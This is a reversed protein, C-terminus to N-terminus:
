VIEDVLGFELCQSADFYIDRKLWKELKKKGIRGKCYELYMKKTKEELYELNQFEDQIEVLKGWFGSSLQHILMSSHKTIRREYGVMSIMTAASAAVGEVITVVPVKSLRITDVAALASFVDGGGSNIHLYLRPELEEVSCAMKLIREGCSRIYQNLEMVSASTVDAYFYIHQGMASVGDTQDEDETEVDDECRYRSSASRM